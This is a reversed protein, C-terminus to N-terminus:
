TTKETGALDLRFRSSQDSSSSAQKTPPPSSTSGEGTSDAKMRAKPKKADQYKKNAVGLETLILKELSVSCVADPSTSNKGIKYKQLLPALLCIEEM